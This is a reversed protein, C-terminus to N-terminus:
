QSKLKDAFDEPHFWLQTNSVLETTRHRNILILQIKRSLKEILTPFINFILFLINFIFILYKIYKKNKIHIKSVEVKSLTMRLKDISSIQNKIKSKSNPFIDFVWRNADIFSLYTNDKAFIPKMQLVEHAVYGSRKFKPVALDSEDFFLNLCVKDEVKDNRPTFRRLLRKNQSQRTGGKAPSVIVDYRDRSRRLLLLQALILATFRGTWLRNKATVIFLDVDHDEGANLMAVSGSLGILKIQPFLSLLKIYLKFKLSNLKSISIQYKKTFNSIASQQNNITLNNRKALYLRAGQKALNRTAESRPIVPPYGNYQHLTYRSQSGKRELAIGGLTMNWKISNTSGRRRPSSSFSTDKQVTLLKKKEMKELIGALHRKSTKKKLFTYIEELTPPYDFFFFYQITDLIEKELNGIELKWNRIQKM